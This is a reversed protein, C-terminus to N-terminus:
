KLRGRIHANDNQSVKVPKDPRANKIKKGRNRGIPVAGTIFDGTEPVKEEKEPTEKPEEKPVHVKSRIVDSNAGAKQKKYKTDIIYNILLTTLISFISSIIIYISFSATYMFSFIAMMIPMMWMMMKQSMAGTGDVSQLEAQAKQSKSMVLQMLLSIGASIVCLIYYGNPASKEEILKATLHNYNDAGVDYGQENKFTNYDSVPHSTASDKVWINKVWLFKANEERFKDASRIQQMDKIFINEDTIGSNDFDKGQQTKLYNNYESAYENEAGNKINEKVVTITHGYNFKYEEGNKNYEQAFVIYGNESSISYKGKGEADITNTFVYKIGNSEFDGTEKKALKDNDFVLRGNMEDIKVYDGDVKMGASIVYNNATAMNYFYVSNQYKSFATFGNIAVIFIVLTLITPLCAGLMSYGNKKYLAMMKQNYLEKNNAYQKKLKELEPRMEEMKISNKRMSARSFFDFPLTILKLIVTFLIIGVAISSTIRMLWDIVQVLFNGKDPLTLYIFDM